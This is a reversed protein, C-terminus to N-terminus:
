LHKWTKHLVIDSITPRKVGYQEALKYQTATKQHGTQLASTYASRIALVDAETLKVQTNKEGIQTDSLKESYAKTSRYRLADEMARPGGMSKLQRSVANPSIDMLKAVQRISLKQDYYYARIKEELENM